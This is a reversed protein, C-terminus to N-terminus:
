IYDIGSEYLKNFDRGILEYFQVRKKDNDDSGLSKLNNYSDIVQDVMRGDLRYELLHKNKKIEIVLKDVIEYADNSMKDKFEVEININYEKLLLIYNEILNIMKGKNLIFLQRLKENFGYKSDIFVYALYRCRIPAKYNNCFEICKNILEITERYTIKTQNCCEIIGESLRQLSNFDGEDIVINKNEIATKLRDSTLYDDVIIKYDLDPINEYRSIFKQLFNEDDSKDDLINYFANIHKELRKKNIMLIVYLGEIDFLHKLIELTKVAFDPRCRDLEDIVLVLRKSKLSDEFKIKFEKIPEDIEGIEEMCKKVINKIFDPIPFLPLLVKAVFSMTKVFEINNKLNSYKLLEKSIAIFPNELYDNEFISCYVADIEKQKLYETFRTSFYTKGTGYGGDIGLVFPTEQNKIAAVMNDAFQRVDPSSNYWLDKLEEIQEEPSLKYFDAEDIMIKGELFNKNGNFKLCM